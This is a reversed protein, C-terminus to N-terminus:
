NMEEDPRIVILIYGGVMSSDFLAVGTTSLIITQTHKNLRLLHRPPM